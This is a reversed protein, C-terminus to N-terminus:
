GVIKITVNCVHVRINQACANWLDVGTMYKRANKVKLYMALEAAERNLRAKTYLM